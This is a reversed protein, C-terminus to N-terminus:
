SLAYFYMSSGQNKKGAKNGAMAKFIRLLIERFGVVLAHILASLHRWSLAIQQLLLFIRGYWLDGDGIIAGSLFLGAVLSGIHRCVM